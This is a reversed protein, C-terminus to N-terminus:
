WTKALTLSVVRGFPSYNTSDYPTETFGITRVAAPKANFMNELSLLLDFGKAIGKSPQLRLALDFTTMGPIATVTAFRADDVGGIRNVTAALNLPGKAWTASARARFHPPNFITGALVSVPQGAGRLQESDLLSANATLALTGGGLGTRYDVLFDVGKITQRAANVYTDDILAVVRAPDFPQETYNTLDDTQALVANIQPLTPSRTVRDAVAPDVLATNFLIIPAVIRDQYRTHFLGVELRLGPIPPPELVATASWSTAREPKLAANGGNFFLVQSGAPFGTGGYDSPPDISTSVNQYLQVLTPARFSKGWSAKLTFGSVPSYILGVKPTAVDGLGPYNEYRLAASLNLRDIGALAMSPSVIPLNVEGYAFKSDQSGIFARVPNLPSTRNIRNDRWGLGLALRADGGPLAFVPGDGSFEVSRGTNCLCAEGGDIFRTGIFQDPGIIVRDKGYAGGLELRWSGLRAQLSPAIVWSRSQANNEVRSVALNGAANLPYTAEKWRRGYVGDISFTIDPTIEQHAAVVVSHRKLAPYLTVGPVKTAAYDRDAATIQTSRAFEYAILVGGSDWAKGGVVSYQQQFNGGDTSAGMRARTRLGDFDRKLVINVVGAVADSGYIASAGDAVVEIRDVTDLPIASIDISQSLASYPLRHGNLLTLTADAGLGRLNIASGGSIDSGSSEPVNFGMGPNQGGGFNQPLSRMADAVTAQGTNRISEASLRVLTSAVPAGRIRSGTVVIDTDTDAPDIESRGSRKVVYSDGVRELVLGSGSLLQRIAEEPSFQGKLAPARRGAVLPTPALIAVGARQAAAALADGLPQAPIDYIQMAPQARAPSITALAAAAILGAATRLRCRSTRNMM